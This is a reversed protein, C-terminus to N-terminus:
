KRVAQLHFHSPAEDKSTTWCCWLSVKEQTRQSGGRFRQCGWRQTGPCVTLDARERFWWVTVAPAAISAFHLNALRWEVKTEMKFVSVVIEGKDELLTLHGKLLRENYATNEKWLKRWLCLYNDTYYNTQYRDGQYVAFVLVIDTKNM